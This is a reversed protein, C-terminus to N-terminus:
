RMHSYSKRLGSVCSKCAHICTYMCYVHMIHMIYIYIYIICTIHRIYMCIGANLTDQPPGAGDAVTEVVRELIPGPEPPTGASFMDHKLFHM